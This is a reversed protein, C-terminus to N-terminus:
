GAPLAGAIADGDAGYVVPVDGFREQRPAEGTTDRLLVARV